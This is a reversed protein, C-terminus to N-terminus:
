SGFTFSIKTWRASRSPNKIAGFLYNM